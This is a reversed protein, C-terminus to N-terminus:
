PGCLLFYCIPVRGLLFTIFLLFFFNILYSVIIFSSPRNTSCRHWRGTISSVVSRTWQNHQCNYLFFTLIKQWDDQAGKRSVTKRRHTHTYFGRKWWKGSICNSDMSWIGWYYIVNVWFLWWYLSTWFSLSIFTIYGYNKVLLFVSVISRGGRSRNTQRKETPHSGKKELM